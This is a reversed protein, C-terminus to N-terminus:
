TSRMSWLKMIVPRIAPRVNESLKVPFYCKSLGCFGRTANLTDWDVPHEEDVYHANGYASCATWLLVYFAATLWKGHNKALVRM